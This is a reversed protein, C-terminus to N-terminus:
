KFYFSRFENFDKEDNTFLYGMESNLVNEIIQHTKEKQENLM